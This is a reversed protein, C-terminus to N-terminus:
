KWGKWNSCHKEIETGDPLRGCMYDHDKRYDSRDRRAQWGAYGPHQAELVIAPALARLLFMQAIPTGKGILFEGPQNLLFVLGFNSPSWWAEIAAEMCSYPRGRENAIGKIYVYDGPDETRPIFAAQVTFSGFAAHNDVRCHSSSELVEVQADSHHDGNWRVLFSGPSLIYYGLSNAMTLPLCHRAHNNTKVNDSWWDRDRQAPIPALSRDFNDPLHIHITDGM